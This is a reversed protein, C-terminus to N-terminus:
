KGLQMLYKNEAQKWRRNSASPPSEENVSEQMPPDVQPSLPQEAADQPQEVLPAARVVPPPVAAPQPPNEHNVIKLRLPLIPPQAHTSDAM